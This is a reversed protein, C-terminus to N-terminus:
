RKFTIFDADKSTLEPTVKAILNAATLIPDSTLDDPLM